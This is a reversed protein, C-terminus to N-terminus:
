MYLSRHIKESRTQAKGRTLVAADGPATLQAPPCPLAQQCTPSHSFRSSEKSLPPPRRAPCQIRDGAAQPAPCASASTEGPHSRGCNRGADPAPGVGRPWTPQSSPLIGVGAALPHGSLWEWTMGWQCRRLTKWGALPLVM